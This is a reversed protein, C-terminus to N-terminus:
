YKQHRGVLSCYLTKVSFIVIDIKAVMFVESPLINQHMSKCNIGEDMLSMLAYYGEETWHHHVNCILMDVANPM